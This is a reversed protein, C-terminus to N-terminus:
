AERSVRGGAVVDGLRPVHGYETVVADTVERASVVSVCQDPPTVIAVPRHRPVRQDDLRVDPTVRGLMDVAQRIAVVEVPSPDREFCGAVTAGRRPEVTM